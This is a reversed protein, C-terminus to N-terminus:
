VTVTAALQARTRGHLTAPTLVTTAWRGAPSRWTITDEPDEIEIGNDSAVKQVFCLPLGLADAVKHANSVDNLATVADDIHRQRRARRAEAVLKRLDAITRWAPPAPREITMTTM